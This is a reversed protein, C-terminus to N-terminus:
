QPKSPSILVRGLTGELFGGWLGVMVIAGVFIILIGLLKLFFITGMYGFIKEAFDIQGIMQFAANTKWVMGFGLAILLLGMFIHLM